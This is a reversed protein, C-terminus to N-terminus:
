RYRDNPNNAPLVVVIVVLLSSLLAHLGARNIRATLRKHIPHFVIVLVIAWELVSIFPRLMLWCVYLAIATAALVAIWRAQDTQRSV